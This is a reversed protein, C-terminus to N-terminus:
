SRGRKSCASATRGAQLASWNERLSLPAWCFVGVLLGFVFVFKAVAALVIGSLGIWFLTRYYGIRPELFDHLIKGGDLPYAPLLNGVAWVVNMWGLWEIARLVPPAL